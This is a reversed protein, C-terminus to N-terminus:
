SLLIVMRMRLLSPVSNKLRVKVFAAKSLLRSLCVFDVPARRPMTKSLASPSLRQKAALTPDGSIVLSSYRGSTSFIDLIPATLMLLSWTRSVSDLVSDAEGAEEAELSSNSSSSSPTYFFSFEFYAIVRFYAGCARFPCFSRAWPM